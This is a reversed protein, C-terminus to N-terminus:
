VVMTASRFVGAQYKGKLFTVLDQYKTSYSPM